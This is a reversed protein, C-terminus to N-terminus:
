EQKPKKWRRLLEDDIDRIRQRRAERVIDPVAIDSSKQQIGLIHQWDQLEQDTLDRLRLGRQQPQKGM